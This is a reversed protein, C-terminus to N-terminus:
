AVGATSGVAPYSNCPYRMAKQWVITGDFLEFARLMGTQSEKGAFDWPNSRSYVRARPPLNTWIEEGTKLNLKYMGGAFDMFVCSDADPFLPALNWVPQDPSYEWLKKGDKVDLVFFVKANGGSTTSNGKVAGVVFVGAYAAPYGCDSGMNDALKEVWVAKGTSRNVAFAKGTSHCSGLVLDEHLSVENNSVGPTKYHWLQHGSSNFAYLGKATMQYLNLDKDIAAGWAFINHFQGKPDSFNWRLTHNLIVESTTGFQTPAKGRM